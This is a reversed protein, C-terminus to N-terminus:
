RDDGPSRRLLVIEGAADSRRVPLVAAIAAVISDSDGVLFNGSVPLDALSADGIRVKRAAYRNIEELADALPVGRFLHRGQSWSTAVRPDVLDKRWPASDAPLRLREGPRLRESRPRGAREGDVSVSGEALLVVVADTTQAVQFRTGLATVVADGARVTFPRRPDHAVDFIARGAELEVSRERESLRVAVTSGVDLHVVSGDDLALRRQEGAATSHVIPTVPAPTDELVLWTAAAAVVCAAALAAASRRRPRPSPRGGAERRDAYAAEAMARLGRDEAALRQVARALREAAAYAEANPPVARWREFAEREEASCDPAGLRAYWQAAQRAAREISVEDM